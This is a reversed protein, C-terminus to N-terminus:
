AGRLGRLVKPTVRLSLGLLLAQAGPHFWFLYIFNFSYISVTTSGSAMLPITIKTKNEKNLARPKSRARFKPIMGPPAQPVGVQTLQM